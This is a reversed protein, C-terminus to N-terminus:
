PGATGTLNDPAPPITAATGSGRGDDYYFLAGLGADQIATAESNPDNAPLSQVWTRGNSIAQPFNSNLITIAHQRVPGTPNKSGRLTGATIENIYNVLSPHRGLDSYTAILNAYRYISSGCQSFSAYDVKDVWEGNSGTFASESIAPRILSGDNTPGEMGFPGWPGDKISHRSNEHELFMSKWTYNYTKFPAWAFVNTNGSMGSTGYYPTSYSPMAVTILTAGVARTTSWMGATEVPNAFGGLLLACHHVWSALQDRIYADEIPTIGGPAQDSRYIGMLVDYATAASYAENVDWYGRYVTAACPLPQSAWYDLEFGVNQQSLSTELLMEKAYAAYTKNGPAGQRYASVGFHKAMIANTAATTNQHPWQSANNGFVLGSRRKTDWNSQGNGGAGTPQQAATVRAVYPPRSARSQFEGWAHTGGWIRDGHNEAKGPHIPDKVITRRRRITPTESYWYELTNSGSTFSGQNLTVTAANANVTAGGNISYSINAGYINRIEFTVTGAAASFYTTQDHIKATWYTWSPTTYFQGDGSARITMAPTKPNVCLLLYKGDSAWSDNYESGAFRPGGFHKSDDDAVMLVHWEDGASDLMGTWYTGNWGIEGVCGTSALTFPGQYAPYLTGSGNYNPAWGLEQWIGDIKYRIQGGGTAGIVSKTRGSVTGTNRENHGMSIRTDARVWIQKVDHVIKDFYLYEEQYSTGKTGEWTVDIGSKYNTLESDAANSTLATALLIAAVKLTTLGPLSSPLFKPFQFMRM